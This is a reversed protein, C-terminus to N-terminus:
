DASGSSVATQLAAVAQAVTPIVLPTLNAAPVAKNVAAVLQNVTTRTAVEFNFVVLLIARLAKGETGPDTLLSQAAAREVLTLQNTLNLGALVAQGATVQTPTQTGDYDIRYNGDGLDAVGVVPLGAAALAQHLLAANSSLAPM